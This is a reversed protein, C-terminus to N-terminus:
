CLSGKLLGPMPGSRMIDWGPLRKRQCCAQPGSGPRPLTAPKFRSRANCSLYLWVEVGWWQIKFAPNNQGPLKRIKLRSHTFERPKSIKQTKLSFRARSYIMLLRPNQSLKQNWHFGNPRLVLMTILNTHRGEMQLPSSKVFRECLKQRPHPGSIRRCAVTQSRTSGPTIHFCCLGQLSM